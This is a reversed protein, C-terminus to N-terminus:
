QEGGKVIQGGKMVVAVTELTRIDSLPDGDVAILDAFRGPAIACRTVAAASEEPFAAPCDVAGSM